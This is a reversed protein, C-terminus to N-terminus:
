AVTPLLQSFIYFSLVRLTGLIDSPSTHIHTHTNYHDWLNEVLQLQREKVGLEPFGKVGSLESSSATLHSPLPSSCAQTWVLDKSQSYRKLEKM